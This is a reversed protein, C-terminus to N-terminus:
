LLIFWMCVGVCVCAHACVYIFVCVCINFHIVHCDKCVTLINALTV